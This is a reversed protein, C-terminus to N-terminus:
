IKGKIVRKCTGLIVRIKKTFKIDKSYAKLHKFDYEPYSQRMLKLAIIRSLMERRRNWQSTQIVPLEKNYNNYEILTIKKEGYIEELLENGIKTRAFIVNRGKHESFDPTKDDKIYWADGCAIDAMEGIGDICFRCAPMLDRGLIKGWSEEYTIKKENGDSDIASTFGPWGNGRYTLSKCDVCDLHELLKYQADVSPEGMCFFSFYYAICEKLKINNNSYNRLAVVDCPKGIFAYKKTYDINKISALPSSISYRSGCRDQVQKISSSFHTVTKTPNNPDVGTHIVYDVKHKELLYSALETLIGGSSARNRIEDNNSWGLYVKEAKGWIKDSDMNKMHSGSVPCLVSFEESVKQPYLFGKEDKRLESIDLAECLGCGTCYKSYKNEM